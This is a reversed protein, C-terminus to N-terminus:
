KNGSGIEIIWREVATNGGGTPQLVVSTAAELQQLGGLGSVQNKVLWHKVDVVTNSRARTGFGQLPGGARQEERFPGASAVHKRCSIVM